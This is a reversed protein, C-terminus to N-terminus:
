AHCLVARHPRRRLQKRWPRWCKPSRMGYRSCAPRSGCTVTSTTSTQPAPTTAASRKPGNSCRRGAETTADHKAFGIFKDPWQRVYSAIEENGKEYTVNTIPFLITQDIGAEAMRRLTWPPDNYTTWPDWTRDNKGYNFGRGAHWHADIVRPQSRGRAQVAGGVGTLCLSNSLLAGRKLFERRNM